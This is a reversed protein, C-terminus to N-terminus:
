EKSTESEALATMCGNYGPERCMGAAKRAADYLRTSAEPDTSAKSAHRLIHIAERVDARYIMFVEWIANDRAIGSTASGAIAGVLDPIAPEGIEGLADTAPYISGLTPIRSVAPLNAKSPDEALRYDLYGILTKM